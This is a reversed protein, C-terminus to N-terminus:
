GGLALPLLLLNMWTGFLFVGPYIKACIQPLLHDSRSSKYWGFMTSGPLFLRPYDTFQPLPKVARTSYLM